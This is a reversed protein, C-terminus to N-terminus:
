DDVSQNDLIDDISQLEEISFSLNELAGVSNSVQDPKSAGILASSIVPHRLIWSLAMQALTQGREQAIDNLRRAKALSENTVNDAALFVSSGAARSDSPIDGNLYKDTLLGQELPSYCICGMDLQDLEQLLSDEIERDFMNYSVQNIICSTGLEKLIEVARRTEEASYNSVGAYLARGSRVATDLALMTEELPTEPDYRHSYFIDFYELGTRKLSQDLSALMYKRSGWEGYPGPWMDYGAKSTVIMEDRYPLFDQKLIRGFTSEASGPPRGYNNAIDFQTIGLNFARHVMERANEYIDNEGFNHWLGLSILPMKLGSKGVRRYAMTDYRNEDATYKM